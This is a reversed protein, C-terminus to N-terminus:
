SLVVSLPVASTMNLPPVYKVFKLVRRLRQRYRVPLIWIVIM